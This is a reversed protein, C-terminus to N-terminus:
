GVVEVDVTVESSLRMDAGSTCGNLDGEKDDEGWFSSM